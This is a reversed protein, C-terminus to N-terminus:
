IRYKDLRKVINSHEHCAPIHNGKRWVHMVNEGNRYCCIFCAHETCVDIFDISEDEPVKEFYTNEIFGLSNTIIKDLEETMDASWGYSLCGLNLDIEKLKLFDKKTIVYYDYEDSWDEPM